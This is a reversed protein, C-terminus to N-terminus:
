GAKRRALGGKLSRIKLARQRSRMEWRDFRARLTAYYKRIEDVGHEEVWREGHRSGRCNCQCLIVRRPDSRLCLPHCTATQSM